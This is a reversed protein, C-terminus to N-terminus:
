GHYLVLLGLPTDRFIIPVFCITRIGARRYIARIAPLTTGLSGKLVRVERERLADLGSTRADRPLTEIIDLIEPSLGRQAVLRLPTPSDDYTWLGAQDVGFLAFSEDIVDRFLGDLDLRGSVKAAIRRLADARTPASDPANPPEEGAREHAVVM